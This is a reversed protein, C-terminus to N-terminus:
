CGVGVNKRRRIYIVIGLTVAEIYEEPFIVLLGAQVVPPHGGVLFTGAKMARRTLLRTVQLYIDYKM